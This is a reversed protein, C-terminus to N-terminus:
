SGVQSYVFYLGSQRVTVTGRQANYDFISSAQPQGNFWSTVNWSRYVFPQGDGGDDALM